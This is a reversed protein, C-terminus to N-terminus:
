NQNTGFDDHLPDIFSDHIVRAHYEQDQNANRTLKTSGCGASFDDQGTGSGPYMSPDSACNNKVSRSDLFSSSSPGLCSSNPDQGHVHSCTKMLEVATAGSTLHQKRHKGSCCHKKGTTEHTAQENKNSCCPKKMVVGQPTCEHNSSCCLKKAIGVHPTHGNKTSCCPKKVTAEQSPCGHNESCPKKEAVEQPPCGHNGSCCPKKKAVEQPPCGHKAQCCSKQMGTELSMHSHTSTCCSQKGANSGKCTHAHSHGGRRPLGLIMLGNLVVLLSSGVDALVALWLSVRGTFALGLVLFKVSVAFVVNQVLKSKVLQSIRIAEPLNQLNNSFLAIDAAEVALASGGVGMAIGIDSCALAPADNIGDGIHATHGYRDRYSHVMNLKDRPLLEAHVRFSDIGVNAAIIEGTTIRDGACM